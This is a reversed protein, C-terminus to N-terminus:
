AAHTHVSSRAQRPRFQIVQGRIQTPKRKVLSVIEQRTIGIDALTRDDLESLERIARREELRLVKDAVKLVTEIFKAM